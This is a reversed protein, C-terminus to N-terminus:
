YPVGDRTAPDNGIVASITATADSNNLLTASRHKGKPLVLATATRVQVPTKKTDFVIINM